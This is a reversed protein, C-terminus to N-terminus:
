TMEENSLSGLMEETTFRSVKRGWYLLTRLGKFKPVAVKREQSEFSDAEVRLLYKGSRVEKSKYNGTDQEYNLHVLVDTQEPKLTVKANPILQRNNDYVTIEVGVLGQDQSM